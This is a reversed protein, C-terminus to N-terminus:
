HDKCWLKASKLYAFSIICYPTSTGYNKYISWGYDKIIDYKGFKYHGAKIRKM